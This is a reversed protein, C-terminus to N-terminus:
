AHITQIAALDVEALAHACRARIAEDTAQRAADELGRRIRDRLEAAAAETFTIAVLRGLHEIRGAVVLGVVRGVLATTKGTGAGAEVLFSQDHEGRLRQRAGADSRRDSSGGDAM